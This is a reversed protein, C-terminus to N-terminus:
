AVPAEDTDRVRTDLDYKIILKDLEERIKNWVEKSMTLTVEMKERESFLAPM